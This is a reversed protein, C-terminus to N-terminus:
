LRGGRYVQDEPKEPYFWGKFWASLLPKILEAQHNFLDRVAIFIVRLARFSCMFTLHLGTSYSRYFRIQNLIRLYRTQAPVKNSSASIKHWLRAGPVAGQKFGALHARWCFEVDEGYMFFRSDFEGVQEFVRKRILLCCGNLFDVQIIKPIYTQDSKGRYPNTAIL